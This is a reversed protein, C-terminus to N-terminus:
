SSAPVITDGRLHRWSSAAMLPGARRPALVLRGRRPRRSMATGRRPRWSLAPAVPGARHPQWSAAVGEDRRGEVRGGVSGEVCDDVFRHTDISNATDGHAM